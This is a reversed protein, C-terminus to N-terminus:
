FRSGSRIYKQTADAWAAAVQKAQDLSQLPATWCIYKRGGDSLRHTTHADSERGKYDPQTEIYVRWTGGSQRELSFSYDAQGDKTRYFTTMTRSEQRAETSRSNSLHTRRARSEASNRGAMFFSFAIIGALILVMIITNEM